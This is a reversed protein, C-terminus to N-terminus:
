SNLVLRQQNVPCLSASSAYVHHLCYGLLMRPNWPPKLLAFHPYEHRILWHVMCDVRLVAAIHWIPPYVVKLLQTSHHLIEEIAHFWIVHELAPDHIQIQVELDWSVDVSWHTPIKKLHILHWPISLPVTIFLWDFTFMISTLVYTRWLASLAVPATM